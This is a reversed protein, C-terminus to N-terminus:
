CKVKQKSTKYIYEEQNKESDILIISGNDMTKISNYWEPSYHYYNMIITKITAGHSVVFLEEYNDRYIMDLFMRTRLAVDFPSEGQPFKAYFKSNNQYHNDYFKFEEPYLKKILEIEKDSFLGYQQEILTIDEKVNKIKLYNNIIDATQRTRKFPSVWLVARELPIEHKDVYAKLFAGTKYVQFKGEETLPVMNDPLGIKYNEKTNQSSEGHRILFLKM